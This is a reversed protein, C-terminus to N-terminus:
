ASSSPEEEQQAESLDYQALLHADTQAHISIQSLQEALLDAASIGTTQQFKQIADVTDYLQRRVSMVCEVYCPVNKELGRTHIGHQRAISLDGEVCMIIDCANRRMDFLEEEDFWINARTDEDMDNLHSVQEVCNEMAFRVSKTPLPSKPEADKTFTTSLMSSSSDNNSAVCDCDDYISFPPMTITTTQYTQKDLLLFTHFKSPSGNHSGEHEWSKRAKARYFVVLAFLVNESPFM